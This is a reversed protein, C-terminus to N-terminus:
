KKKDVVGTKTNTKAKKKKNNIRVNVENRVKVKLDKIRELLAEYIQKEKDPKVSRGEKFREEWSKAIALSQALERHNKSMFGRVGGKNAEELLKKNVGENGLDIKSAVYNIGRFVPGLVHKLQWGMPMQDMKNDLWHSGTVATNKTKAQGTFGGVFNVITTVGTAITSVAKGLPSKGWDVFKEFMKVWTPLNKAIADFAPQVANAAVMQAKFMAAIMKFNKAGYGSMRNFRSAFLRLPGGFKNIHDYARREITPLKNEKDKDQIDKVTKDYQDRTMKGTQLGTYAEQFKEAMHISGFGMKKFALKGADSLGGGAGMGYEAMLQNFIDQVNQGTAGREQRKLVDMLGAGRGFGFARMIFQQGVGQAGQIAGHVRGLAAGAYKGRLGPAGTAQLRGLEKTFGTFDGRNPTIALQRESLSNAAQMFESMRSEDLGTKVAIHFARTMQRFMQETGTKGQLGQRRMIGGGVEIAGPGLARNLVAGAEGAAASRGMGARAAQAQIGALEAANYGLRAGVGTSFTAGKGLVPAAQVRARQVAEFNSIGERFASTMFSLIGGSMMGVLKGFGGRVKGFMLQHPTKDGTGGGGGAGGGGRGSRGINRMARTAEKAAGAEERKAKTAEQTARTNERTAAAHAETYAAAERAKAGNAFPNGGGGGGGGGSRYRGGGGASTGARARDYASGGGGRATRMRRLQDDVKRRFSSFSQEAVDMARSFANKASAAMVNEDIKFRFKFTNQREAM